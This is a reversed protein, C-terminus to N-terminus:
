CFAVCLDRLVTDCRVRTVAPASLDEDSVPLRIQVRRQEKIAGSPAIALREPARISLLQKPAPAEMRCADSGPLSSVARCFCRRAAMQFDSRRSLARPM